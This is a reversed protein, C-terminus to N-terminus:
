HLGLREALRQQEELAEIDRAQEVLNLWVWQLSLERTMRDLIAHMETPDMFPPLGLRAYIGPLEEDTEQDFVVYEESSTVQLVAEHAELQGTLSQLVSAGPHVGELEFTTFNAADLVADVRHLPLIEHNDEEEDLFDALNIPKPEIAVWDDYHQPYGVPALQIVHATVPGTRLAYYYREYEDEEFVLRILSGRQLIPGIEEPNIAWGVPECSERALAWRGLRTAILIREWHLAKDYSSDGLGEELVALAEELQGSRRLKRILQMRLSADSTNLKLLAYLHTVAREDDGLKEAWQLEAHTLVGRVATDDVDDYRSQLKEFADRRNKSLYRDCLTRLAEEHTPNRLVFGELLAEFTEAFGLESWSEGALVLVDWWDPWTEAAELLMGLPLGDGEGLLSEVKERDDHHLPSHSAKADKVKAKLQVLNDKADLVKDLEKMMNQIDRVILDVLVFARKQLCIEAAWHAIHISQRLVGQSFLQKYSFFFHPLPSGLSPPWHGGLALWQAADCWSYYDSQTGEVEYWDPMQEVAEEWRGLMSLIRSQDIRKEVLFGDGLAEYEANKNFELAEELRGLGIYSEVYQNRFGYVNTEGRVKEMAAFQQETFDLAEEYREQDLLANAYECSICRWCPWKPNIRGLTESAVQMRENSYGPGDARGYAVCVDQSVCITQPCQIADDRHARELLDIAEPLAEKILSRHLIRSQMDWHRLFVEIWPNKSERALALAEPMLSDVMEHDNDVIFSPLRFLMWVLRPNDDKFENYVDDLWRWIDM